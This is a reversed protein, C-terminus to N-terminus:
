CLHVGTADTPVFDNYSPSKKYHWNCSLDESPKYSKTLLREEVGVREKMSAEERRADSEYWDAKRLRSYCQEFEESLADIQAQM